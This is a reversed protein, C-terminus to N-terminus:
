AEARQEGPIPGPWSDDQGDALKGGVRELMARDADTLLAALEPRQKVLKARGKQVKDDWALTDMEDQTDIGEMRKLLADTWAKAPDPDGKAAAPTAKAAPPKAAPRAAVEHTTADADPTEGEVPICFTIFAAYKYAASMAKNTSKDGSDMAEGYTSATHKTGDIASVFDFEAKVVTYFLVGGKQTARETFSRDMMRPIVCLKNQSLLPALAGYVDDIGRFNYGQTANRKDKSIGTKALEAMVTAIAKYVEM